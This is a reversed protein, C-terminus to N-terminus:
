NRFHRMAPCWALVLKQFRPYNAVGPVTMHFSMKHKTFLFYKLNFSLVGMIVLHVMYKYLEYLVNEFSNLLNESNKRVLHAFFTSKDCLGNM